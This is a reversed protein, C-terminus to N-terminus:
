AVRKLCAILQKHVLARIKGLNDDPAPIRILPIGAAALAIDKIKDNIRSIDRSLGHGSGDIEIVVLPRLDGNIVLLDVRKSNVAWYARRDKSKLIEGLSVQLLVHENRRRKQLITLVTQYATKELRNALPKAQFAAGHVAQLHECARQLIPNDRGSNKRHRRRLRIIGLILLVTLVLLTTGIIQHHPM